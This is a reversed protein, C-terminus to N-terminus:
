VYLAQHMMQRQRISFFSLIIGWAASSISNFVILGPCIKTWVFLACLYDFFASIILLQYLNAIILMFIRYEIIKCDPANTIKMLFSKGYEVRIGIKERWVCLIKRRLALWEFFSSHFNNFTLDIPHVCKFSDVNQKCLRFTNTWRRRNWSRDYYIDYSRTFIIRM